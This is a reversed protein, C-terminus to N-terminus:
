ISDLEVLPQWTCDNVAILKKRLNALLLHALILDQRQGDVTHVTKEANTGYFALLQLQKTGDTKKDCRFQSAGAAQRNIEQGGVRVVTDAAFM